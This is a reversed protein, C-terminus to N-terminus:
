KIYDEANYGDTERDNQSNVVRGCDTLVHEDFNLVPFQLECLFVKARLSHSRAIANAVGRM